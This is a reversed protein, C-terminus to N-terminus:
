GSFLRHHEIKLCRDMVVTLGAAQARRAAEEHRLGLQMWVVKAGKVIAEEVIAPIAEPQRFIDVIDISFPIDHLSPYCRVGLLTAIRPNVPALRYGQEQLYRTVRHSDRDPDPSAGIVAINKSLTLIAKLEADTM